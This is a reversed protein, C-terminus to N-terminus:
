FRYNAGVTWLIVDATGFKADDGVKRVNEYELRAALDRSVRYELGLGWHSNLKHSSEAPLPTLGGGPDSASAKVATRLAGVKALGSWSESVPLWLVAGAGYGDARFDRQLTAAAPATIAASFNVRGFNWYGAELSFHPSLRYGVYGKWMTDTANATVNFTTAGTTRIVAKTREFDTDYGGRGIAGGAYLKGQGAHGRDQAPALDACLLSLVAVFVRILFRDNM